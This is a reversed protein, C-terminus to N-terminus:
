QSKKNKTAVAKPKSVVKDIKHVDQQKAVVPVPKPAYAFALSSVVLSGFFALLWAKTKIKEPHTIQPRAEAALIAHHNDQYFKVNENNPSLRMMHNHLADPSKDLQGFVQTQLTEIDGIPIRNDRESRLFYALDNLTMYKSSLNPDISGNSHTCIVLAHTNPEVAIANKIVQLKGVTKKLPADRMDMQGNQYTLTLKDSDCTVNSWRGSWDKAEFLYIGYLTVLLLDIEKSYPDTGQPLLVADRIGVDQNTKFDVGIENLTQYVVDALRNEGAKGKGNTLLDNKVAVLGDLYAKAMVNQEDVKKIRSNNLNILFLCILFLVVTLCVLNFLLSGPPLSTM